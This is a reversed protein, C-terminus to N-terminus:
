TTVNCFIQTNPERDSWRYGELIDPEPTLTKTQPDYDYFCAFDLLVGRKM